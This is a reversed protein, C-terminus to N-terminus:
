PWSDGRTPRSHFGDDEPSTRGRQRDEYESPSPASRERSVGRENPQRDAYADPVPDDSSMLVFDPDTDKQKHRNDLVVFKQKMGRITLSGTGRSKGGPKPRWLAGVRRLAPREDYGNSM